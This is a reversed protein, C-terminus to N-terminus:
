SGQSGPPTLAHAAHEAELVIFGAETLVDIAVMRILVEDEVVVVCPKSRDKAMAMIHGQTREWLGFLGCGAWTGTAHRDGYEASFPLAPNIAFLHPETRPLSFWPCCGPLLWCTTLPHAPVSCPVSAPRGIAEM